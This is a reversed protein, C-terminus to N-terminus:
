SPTPANLPRMRGSIHGGPVSQEAKRANDGNFTGGITHAGVHDAGPEHARWQNFLLNRFLRPIEPNGLFLDDTVHHQFIGDVAFERGNVIDGLGRHEEGGERCVRQRSLRDHDAM